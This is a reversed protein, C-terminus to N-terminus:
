SSVENLGGENERSIVEEKGWGAINALVFESVLVDGSWFSVSKLEGTTYMSISEAREALLTVMHIADLFVLYRNM